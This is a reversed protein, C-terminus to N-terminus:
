ERTAYNSRFLYCRYFVFKAFFSIISALLVCLQYALHVQTYFLLYLGYEM